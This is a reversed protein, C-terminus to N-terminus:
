HRRMVRYMRKVFSYCKPYRKLSISLKEVYKRRDTFLYVLGKVFKSKGHLIDHQIAVPPMMPLYNHINYENHQEEIFWAINIKNTGGWVEDEFFSSSFIQLDAENAFRLFGEYPFSVEVPKIPLSSLEEEFQAIFNEVFELAGQHIQQVVFKDAINKEMEEFVPLVKGDAIKEFGICSPEYSSFIHERIVGSMYPEFDYFCHIRYNQKRSERHYQSKDSHIFFADVGRGVAVSIASQIRGSYGMDVTASDAEIISYYESCVEKSKFHQEENYFEQQFVKIFKNYEEKDTFRHKVDIKYKELKKQYEEDTVPLMCFGLLEKLTAASHNLVEVPLNFLDFKDKIMFPMVAKRSSYIYEAEPADEYKRALINYVLMPLYGDRSLFYLKKYGLEISKEILWKSFGYLHMGVPYYGIFYPDANLDSQENFSRYPNDFYKNAVTAIMAGYGLSNRYEDCNIIAGSAMQALSSCRNTTEGQIINEFVEKTKPFFYTKIGLEGPKIFDNKWTDGIHIVKKGSVSLDSLVYKFLDGTYKTLREKSSLYLHDYGYYENKELIEKIVTETLYMDSVIIVKKGLGKALEFLEKASSRVKSLKIELTIEANKMDQIIADPLGYIKGMELYIEDITIDQYEPFKEGFRRRTIGEADVRIKSFLVNTGVLKSFKENLLEFVQEPKYLPRTILTDFIDFSVYEIDPDAIMKKAVDFGEHWRFQVSDFFHDEPQIRDSLDPYLREIYELSKKRYKESLDCEVLRLWMKAYFKRFENYDKMMKRSAKQSVLFEKVFDFVTIIDNMNKQFRDFSMNKSNTSAGENECYFCCSNNVKVIKQSFYFLVSSFAIDETMIVHNTINLYYPFAKDWLSKAYLKNWVTHWSYCRGQQGFYTNRIDEGELSAFNLSCEHFHNIWRFGDEKEWVTRGIVIDAAERRAASILAYYFDFSIYDDSDLFAIYDGSAEKSGTVRAQFLGRNVEHKIYKIRNDKKQFGKIISEAEGPSCDNVIIIELNEYNQNLVSSICRSLYRETGYVPIIISIIPQM